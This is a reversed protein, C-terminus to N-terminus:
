AATAPAPRSGIQERVANMAEWDATRLTALAAPFVGDQEKLIHWRLLDLAGLLRAAWAPDWSAVACSEELVTDINRHERRLEAMQDPFDAELPPFLGREEVQVHPVLLEAICQALRGMRQMDGDRHAARVLAILDVVREHERTLEGIAAVDQCGCYECM